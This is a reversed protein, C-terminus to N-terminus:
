KIVNKAEFCLTLMPEVKKDAIWSLVAAARPQGNVCKVWCEVEDYFVVLTLMGLRNGKEVATHHPRAHASARLALVVVAKPALDEGRLSQLEHDEHKVLKLM